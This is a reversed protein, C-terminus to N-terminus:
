FQFQVPYAFVEYKKISDITVYEPLSFSSMEFGIKDGSKLEESIITFIQGIPKENKDFLIAAIYVMSEDKDSTNEVRGLMKMDGYEDGSLSIDSVAYRINDVKAKEAKPRPIIKLETEDALDDLTTEEYYYAKEGPEIVEPFVSILSSSKILKGDSDELDYAGASMYLATTGTNEVEFIAQVWITGISDKYSTANSYTVEYISKESDKTESPTPTSTSEPTESQEPVTSPSNDTIIGCASLSVALVIVLFFISAKKM